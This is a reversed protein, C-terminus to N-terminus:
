KNVGFFMFALGGHLNTIQRFDWRNMLKPLWWIAQAQILHANRGDPLTKKAPRTAITLFAARLTLRRLDDLVADLCEPEIHELVDTCIVLDAPEPPTAIEPIAPDYSRVNLDPLAKALTQQGAGYDLASNAKLGAYLAAVQEAWEYGSTGYAGQAHLAQNQARYDETILNV